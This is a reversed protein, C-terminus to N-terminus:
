TEGQGESGPRASPNTTKPKWEADTVRRIHGKESRIIAAAAKRDAEKTLWFTQAYKQGDPMRRSLLCLWEAGEPVYLGSSPVETAHRKAFQWSM